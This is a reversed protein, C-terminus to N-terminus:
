TRVLNRFPGRGAVVVALVFIMAGYLAQVRGAVGDLESSLVPSGRGAPPGSAGPTGGGGSGPIVVTKTITRDPIEPIAPPQPPLPPLPVLRASSEARGLAFGVLVNRNLEAPVCVPLPPPVAAVESLEPPLQNWPFAGPEPRYLPNPGADIEPPPDNVPDPYLENFAVCSPDLAPKLADTAPAPLNSSRVVDGVPPQIVEVALVGADSETKAGDERVAETGPILRVQIGHEALADNVSRYQEVGNVTELVGVGAESIQVPKGNLTAGAIHIERETKAGNMTGASISMARLSITRIHLTPGIQVDSLVSSAEAVVMTRAGKRETKISSESHAAGIVLTQDQVLPIEITRALNASGSSGLFASDTRGEAYRLPYQAGFQGWFLQCTDLLLDPFSVTPAPSPMLFDRRGAECLAGFDSTAADDSHPESPWLSEAVGFTTRAEKAFSYFEIFADGIAGPWFGAAIGHSSESDISQGTFAPWLDLNPNVMAPIYAGAAVATGEVVADIDEARAETARVPAPGVVLAALAFLVAALASRGRENASL